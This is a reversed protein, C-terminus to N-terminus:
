GLRMREALVLAMLMSVVRMSSSAASPLSSAPPPPLVSWPPPLPLGPPLPVSITQRCHDFRNNQHSLLKENELIKHTKCIFTSLEEPRVRQSVPRDKLSLVINLRLTEVYLLLVIIWCKCHQVAVRTTFRPHIEFFFFM